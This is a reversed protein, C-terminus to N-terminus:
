HFHAPLDDHSHSAVRHHEEGAARVPDVHVVAMGLYGLRHMLRRNIELAIEHWEAGSLDADVAV